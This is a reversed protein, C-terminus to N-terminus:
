ESIYPEIAKNLLNNIYNLAGYIVRAYESFSFNEQENYFSCFRNISSYHESQSLIKYFSSLMYHYFRVEIDDHNLMFDVMGKISKEPNFDNVSARAQLRDIETKLYNIPSSLEIKYNDNNCLNCLEQRKNLAELISKASKLDLADCVINRNQPEQLLIYLLTIVDTIVARTILKTPTITDQNVPLKTLTLINDRIRKISDHCCVIYKPCSKDKFIKTLMKGNETLLPLCENYISIADLLYKPNQPFLGNKATKMSDM